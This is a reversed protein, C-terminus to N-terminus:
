RLSAAAQRIACRSECVLGFGIRGTIELRGRSGAIELMFAALQRGRMDSHAYATPTGSM